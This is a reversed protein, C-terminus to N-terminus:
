LGSRAERGALTASLLASISVVPAYSLPLTARKDPSLDRTRTGDDGDHHSHHLPLM